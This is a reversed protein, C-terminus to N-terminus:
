TGMSSRSPLDTTLIGLTTQLPMPPVPPVDGTSSLPMTISGWHGSSSGSSRQSRRLSASRLGARSVLSSSKRVASVQSSRRSCPLKSSSSMQSGTGYRDTLDDYEQAVDEAQKWAEDREAEMTSVLQRLTENEAVQKLFSTNLKRLAMALASGLHVDGLSKLHGLQETVSHLEEVLQDLMLSVETLEELARFVTTTNSQESSELHANLSGILNWRKRTLLRYRNKLDMKQMELRHMEAPIETDLTELRLLRVSSAEASKKIARSVIAQLQQSTFTWQAAELTYGRFKPPPIQFKPSSCQAVLKRWGSSSRSSGASKNMTSSSASSVSENRGRIAPSFIQGTSPGRPGIPLPPRPRAIRLTSLRRVPAPQSTSPTQPVVSARGDSTQTHTDNIKGSAVSTPNYGNTQSDVVAQYPPPAIFSPRPSSGPETESPRRSEPPTSTQIMPRPSLSPLHTSGPAVPATPVTAPSVPRSSTSPLSSLTDDSTFAHNSLPRRATWSPSSAHLPSALQRSHPSISFTSLPPTHSPQSINPLPRPMSRVSRVSSSQSDANEVQIEPLSPSSPTIPPMPPLPKMRAAITRAHELTIESSPQKSLSPSLTPSVPTLLSLLSPSASSETVETVTHLKLSSKNGAVTTAARTLLVKQTLSPKSVHMTGSLSASRSPHGSAFRLSSAASLSPVVTASPSGGATSPTWVPSFANPTEPFTQHGSGTSPTNNQSPSREPGVTIDFHSIDKSERIVTIPGPTSGARQRSFIARSIPAFMGDLVDPSEIPTELGSFFRTNSAVSQPTSSVRVGPTLHLPSGSTPVSVPTLPTHPVLLSGPREGIPLLRVKSNEQPSAHRRTDSESRHVM